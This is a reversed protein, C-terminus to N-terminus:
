GASQSVPSVLIQIPIFYICGALKVEVSVIMSPGIIRVKANKFGKPADDSAAILKLRKIDGLIAELTTLALAASIDAVSQGLFAREMRTGLTTAIVDGVYVAQISNFVFNDDLTYTTQDSVFKFGGTDNRTVVNLGGFLADEVQTDNQDNFDGAAQLIGSATIFKAVIARYFGAAQTGAAKIATMWPQFQIISGLSNTDKCDQFHCSVRASALNSAASIADDFDGRFSVFAQRPKRRKLASMQLVHSRCLSHVSAITYSSAADTLGDAIDESADRSFLPILFNGRVSELAVLALNIDSNSTAGKAGSSLFALSSVDPLGVLVTAPDIPAVDALVNGANVDVMFNYGDQKIRGTKAGWATALNYTGEDLRISPLQSAATSYAAVVYDTQISIFSVLDAITPYDSLNITLDTGTGGSRTITMVGDAIVATATTGKYGLTLVVDGGTVIDDSTSTSQRAVNVNVAYEADSTLLTPSGTVSVWGANDITVSGSDFTFAIDAFSGTSTDAIELSKGTGALVAGATNSIVIPSYARVDTTAAVVLPGETIPPTLDDGSGTADLVKILDLRTNTAATCVYTGENDAAFPSGTKIFVIDGVNPNTDWATDIELHCEFGTDSTMQFNGAIVTVLTGDVGGTATVDGGDIAAQIVPPLDGATM